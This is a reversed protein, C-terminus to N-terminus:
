RRTAKWTEVITRAQKYLDLDSRVIADLFTHMNTGPEVTAHPIANRIATVLREMIAEYTITTLGPFQDEMEKVLQAAREAREKWINHLNSM